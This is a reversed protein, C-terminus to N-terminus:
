AAPPARLSICPVAVPAKCRTAEPLLVALMEFYFSHASQVIGLYPFFYFDDVICREVVIQHAGNDPVLDGCHAAFHTHDEYYIHVKQGAYAALLILLMLGAYFRGLTKRIM